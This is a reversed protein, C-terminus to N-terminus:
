PQLLLLRKLLHTNTRSECTVIRGLLWKHLSVTRVYPPGTGFKCNLLKCTNGCHGFVNIVTRFHIINVSVTFLSASCQSDWSLRDTEDPKMGTLHEHPFSPAALHWFQNWVKHLTQSAQCGFATCGIRLRPEKRSGSQESFSCRMAPLGITEFRRVNVVVNLCKQCVSPATM